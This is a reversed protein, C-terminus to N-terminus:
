PDLHKAHNKSLLIGGDHLRCEQIAIPVCCNGWTKPLNVEATQVNVWRVPGISDPITLVSALPIERPDTLLTRETGFSPHYLRWAGRWYFLAATDPGRDRQFEVYGGSGMASAADKGMQRDSECSCLLLLIALLYKM